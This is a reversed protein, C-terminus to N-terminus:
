KGGCRTCRREPTEPADRVRIVNHRLLRGEDFNPALFSVNWVIGM